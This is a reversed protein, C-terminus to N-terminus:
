LEEEGIEECTNKDTWNYGKANCEIGKIYNEDTSVFDNYSYLIDGDLTIQNASTCNRSVISEVDGRDWTSEYSDVCGSGGIGICNWCIENTQKEVLEPKTYTLPKYDWNSIIGATAIGILLLAIM